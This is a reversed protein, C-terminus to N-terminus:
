HECQPIASNLDIILHGDLQLLLLKVYILTKQLIGSRSVFLLSFINRPRIGSVLTEESSMAAVSM